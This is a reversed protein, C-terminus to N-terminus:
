QIYSTRTIISNFFQEKPMLWCEKVLDHLINFNKLSFHEKPMLWCEKVLDHLINFNKLSFHEKPM